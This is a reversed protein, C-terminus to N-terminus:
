SVADQAGKKPVKYETILDNMRGANWIIKKGYGFLVNTCGQGGAGKLQGIM